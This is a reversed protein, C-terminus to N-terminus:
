IPDDPPVLFSIPLLIDNANYPFSVTANLNVILYCPAISVPEKYDLLEKRRPNKAYDKSTEEVVNSQRFSCSRTRVAIREAIQPQRLARGKKGEERRVM